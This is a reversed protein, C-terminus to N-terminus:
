FGTAIRDVAIYSRRQVQAAGWKKQTYIAIQKLDARASKSLTFVSM